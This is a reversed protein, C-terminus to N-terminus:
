YIKSYEKGIKNLVTCDECSNAEVCTYENIFVKGAVNNKTEKFKCGCYYGIRGKKAIRGKKNILVNKGLGRDVVNKKMCSVCMCCGKKCIHEPCCDCKIDYNRSNCYEIDFPVTSKNKNKEIIDRKNVSRVEPIQQKGFPDNSYYNGPTIEPTDANVIISSKKFFVDNKYNRPNCQNNDLYEPDISSTSEKINNKGVKINEMKYNLNSNSNVQNLNLNNQDISNISNDLKKNKNNRYFKSNINDDEKNSIINFEKKRSKIKENINNNEGNKKFKEIIENKHRDILHGWFTEKCGKFDCLSCEMECKRMHLKLEALNSCKQGCKNPCSFGNESIKRRLSPNNECRFPYNHCYPCRENNIHKECFLESCNKCEFPNELLENCEYCKFYDM